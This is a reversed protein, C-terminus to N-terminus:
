TAQRRAPRDAPVSPEQGSRPWDNRRCRPATDPARPHNTACRPVSYVMIVFVRSCVRLFASDCTHQRVAAESTMATADSVPQEDAVGSALACALLGCFTVRVAACRVLM